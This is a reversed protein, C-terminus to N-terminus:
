PSATFDRDSVIGVLERDANVVPLHRIDLGRLLDWAEGISADDRVVIPSGTMIDDITASGTSGPRRATAVSRRRARASKTRPRRKTPRVQRRTMQKTSM